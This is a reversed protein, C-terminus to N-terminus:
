SIFRSRRAPRPSAHQQQRRPTQESAGGGAGQKRGWRTLKRQAASYVCWRTLHAVVLAQQAVEGIPGLGASGCLCRSRCRSPLRAGRLAAGWPRDADHADHAVLLHFCVTQYSNTVALRQGHPAGGGRGSKRSWLRRAIRSVHTHIHPHKIHEHDKRRPRAGRDQAAAMRLHRARTQALLEEAKGKAVHRRRRGRRGVGEASQPDRRRM